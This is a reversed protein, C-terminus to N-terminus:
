LKITGLEGGHLIKFQDDHADGYILILFDEM